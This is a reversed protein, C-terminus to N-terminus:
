QGNGAGQILGTQIQLIHNPFELVDWGNRSSHVFDTETLVVPYDHVVGMGVVAVVLQEVVHTVVQRADAPNDRYGTCRSFSIRAVPLNESVVEAM